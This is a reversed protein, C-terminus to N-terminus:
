RVLAAAFADMVENVLTTDTSNTMVVLGVDRESFFILYAVFGEDDGSHSFQRCRIV